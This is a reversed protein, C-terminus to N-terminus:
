NTPFLESQPVNLFESIISQALLPVKERSLWTYFTTPEIKCIERIKNRFSRKEELNKLNQYHEKFNM